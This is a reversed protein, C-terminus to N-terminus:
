YWSQPPCCAFRGDIAPSSVKPAPHRSRFKRPRCIGNASCRCTGVKPIELILPEALGNTEFYAQLRKRAQSATVRVVNDSSTDYSVPRGFVRQGIEQEHIEADPDQLARECVFQLFERIRGSNTIQPSWIVRQLLAQREKATSASVESARGSREPAPAM